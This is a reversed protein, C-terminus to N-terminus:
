DLQGRWGLRVGVADPDKRASRTARMAAAARALAAAQPRRVRLLLQTPADGAGARPASGATPEPRDRWPLPGLRQAPPGPGTDALLSEIEDAAALVARRPGTLRALIAAPPLELSAREVLEREALWAPDWRVLAEVAPLTVGAPAGALVVAGGEAGPRVLAAAGVWRRLAEVSADLEPRDLLAWADLLLAAAYRGDAVPEAGPTAIVLRPEPGVRPVVAGAGSTTVPVGPFARGLEEATRRAGVLASRLRRGGCQRCEFGEPGLGAGCWACGAPLGPGPLAMPGQCRPCRARTRCDQCSLAPLYGRRPVQVLVPGDALASRAARWAASPLHARTAPGDRAEDLGEGAVHARPAARRVVPSAARLDVARGSAVWDAAEVSRAFGASVLAAGARTARAALVERVHPYPARPEDHLDDGDDWWVVLGLEHVPAFAAARTGVVVRVHGRLVRLWATYRAQPGQDATLRVHRGSGLRGTLAADVRDVDRADPVVIVVGRGRSLAAAALVALADPWDQGPERGPLALWSAWPSQGAAVRRVLAPGAPYAAWPGPGPAPVPEGPDPAELPLAREAAAHRKPVALRLVDGLVGAYHDAVTRAVALIEPTLVPEPSVVSRLEALRGPHEARARREVVFGNLLRGAFRVRVRVGPQADKELREPVAYEFPRDLHALPSDVVVAAVPRSGPPASSTTM